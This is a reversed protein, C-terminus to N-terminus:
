FSGKVDFLVRSDHAKTRPGNDLPMAWTLSGSVSHGPLIDLGAGYSRLSYHRPEGSLADIYHSRGGDFFIFGDGLTFSRTVAPPSTLQLTGKWATDGLDEASLYGRVGDSGTVSMQEYVVLPDLADQGAARLLLQMNGPLRTTFSGDAHLYAYNGRAQYRSNDFNVTENALGRPGFNGTINLSGTQEVMGSASGRQWAGSYGVSANVYSIPEITAGTTELSITNRFHKYDLGLTFADLEGPAQLAPFSMRAGIIQGKGLVGLTGITATDSNSDTFSVSPRIGGAFPAFGYTANSVSVQGAHEPSGTYQVAISDLDNFLNNYSLSATARLSSTDPTYDNNIDLSGHLPVHDNVQLALDMTGPDPGAKLIPVVTRDPTQANVANLERQLEPLKPVQGPQTAPLADLIKGESFYRAGTITRVRVRGETVRLRVIGNNVEQPPIDVFVTAFGSAHYANELATRAAEVDALTKSDGLRPYLVGEIERNSMVTNGLVRDEHVDFRQEAATNPAAAPQPAPPPAQSASPPAQAVSTELQLGSALAWLLRLAIIPRKTV